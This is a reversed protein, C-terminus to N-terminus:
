TVEISVNSHIVDLIYPENFVPSNRKIEEVFTGNSVILIRDCINILERVEPSYVLVGKGSDKQQLLLKYIESKAKVDVGRTPEDVILVQSNKLLWKAIVVKQQNGGSLFQVPQDLSPTKIDLKYVFENSSSTTKTQSVLGLIGTLKELSGIVINDRVTLFTALGDKQRDNTVMAIGKQLGESPRKCFIQEDEMFITGSKYRMIGQISSFLETIGAGKLGAFGIIENRHLQFNINHFDKGNSLDNVELLVERNETESYDKIVDEIDDTITVGLMPSIIHKEEMKKDVVMDSVIKGDRLVVVRDSIVLTEKIKHSIFIIGIQQKKLDRIVKFLHNVEMYNLPATVEDLLLIKPNLLVAKAISAIEMEVLSLTSVPRNIDMNEHGLKSLTERCERKMVEFDLFPGNKLKEKGLFINEAISLRPVLTPEQHVIGIGLSEAMNPSSISVLEGNLLIQGEDPPYIGAIINCLTSKGAGNTGVLSVIEGAKLTFDVNKLANVSYFSKSVGNIRLIPETM